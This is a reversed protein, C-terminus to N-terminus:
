AQSRRVIRFTRLWRAAEQSGAIYAALLFIGGFAALTGLAVVYVRWRDPIVDLQELGIRAGSAGAAAIASAGVIRATGVWMAHTSLPGLRRRLGGALLV